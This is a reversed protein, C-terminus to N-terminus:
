GGLSPEFTFPILDNELPLRYKDPQEHRYPHSPANVFAAESVGVNQVAHWIGPPIVVTARNLEGVYLEELRGHTPSEERGDFLVIRCTGFTPFIRDTQIRHMVWGKVMGPRISAQYVYRLPEDDLDWEPNFIEVLTGRRDVHTVAPRVVVGDIPERLRDGAPTVTQPDRRADLM